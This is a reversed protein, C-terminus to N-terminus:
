KRKYLKIQSKSSLYATIVDAAGKDFRFIVTVYRDPCGIAMYRDEKSKIIFPCTEFIRCVEEDSVGHKCLVKIKVSDKINVRRVKM